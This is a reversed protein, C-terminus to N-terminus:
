APSEAIYPEINVTELYLMNEYFTEDLIDEGTLSKTEGAKLLFPAKSVWGVWNHFGWHVMYFMLNLERGTDNRITFSWPFHYDSGRQHIIDYHFQIVTWDDYYTPVSFEAGVAPTPTVKIKSITATIVPESIPYVAQPLSVAASSITEKDPNTSTAPYSDLGPQTNGEGTIGADSACAAFATPVAVLFVLLVKITFSKM